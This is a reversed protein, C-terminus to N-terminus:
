RAKLDGFIGILILIPAREEFREFFATVEGPVTVKMVSQTQSSSAVTSLVHAVGEKEVAASAKGGALLFSFLPKL